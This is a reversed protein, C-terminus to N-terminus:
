SLGLALVAMMATCCVVAEVVDVEGVIEVDSDPAGDCEKSEDMERAGVGAVAM